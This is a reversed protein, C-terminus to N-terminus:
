IKKRLVTTNSNIHLSSFMEKQITWEAPYLKKKVNM